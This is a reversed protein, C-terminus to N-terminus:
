ERFIIRDYNEKTKNIIPKNMGYFSDFFLDKLDKDQENVMQPKSYDSYIIEGCGHQYLNYLCNFCPEGTIYATYGADKIKTNLIANIESHIMWPYKEPRTKPLKNDNLNKAFSNYGTSFIHDDKVFICGCKTHPDLSRLSVSEAINLFYENKNPRM